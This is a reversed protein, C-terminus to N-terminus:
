PQPGNQEAPEDQEASEDKSHWKPGPALLGIEFLGELVGRVQKADPDYLRLGAAMKALMKEFEAALEAERGERARAVARRIMRSMESGTKPDPRRGADADRVAQEIMRELLATLKASAAKAEAQYDRQERQPAEYLEALLLKAGALKDREDSSQLAAQLALWVEHPDVQRRLYEHLPERERDHKKGRGPSMRGGLKGLARM